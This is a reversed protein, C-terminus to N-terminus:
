LNLGSTKLDEEFLVQIM